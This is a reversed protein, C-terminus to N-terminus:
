RSRFRAAHIVNKAVPIRKEANWIPAQVQSNGVDVVLVIQLLKASVAVPAPGSVTTTPMMKTAILLL